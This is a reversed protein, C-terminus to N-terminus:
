IKRGEKFMKLAKVFEREGNCVPGIGREVEADVLQYHNQEVGHCNFSLERPETWGRNLRDILAEVDAKTYTREMNM